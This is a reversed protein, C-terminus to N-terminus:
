CAAVRTNGNTVAVWPSFGKRLQDHQESQLERLASASMNGMQVVM